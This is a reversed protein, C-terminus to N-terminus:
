QGEERKQVERIYTFIARIEEDTLFYRPMVSPGTAVAKKITEFSANRIDPGRLQRKRGEKDVYRAILAGEGRDGHCPVCSVGRPNQYLMQGYEFPSIFDEAGLPLLLLMGGVVGYGLRRAYAAIPTRCKAFNM